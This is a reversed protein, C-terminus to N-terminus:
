NTLTRYAQTKPTGADVPEACGAMEPRACRGTGCAEQYSLSKASLDPGELVYAGKDTWAGARMKDSGWLLCTGTKGNETCQWATIIASRGNCIGGAAYAPAAGFVMTLVGAMGALAITGNMSAAM